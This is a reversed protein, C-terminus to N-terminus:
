SVSGFVINYVSPKAVYIPFHACISLQFTTQGGNENFPPHQVIADVCFRQIQSDIENKKYVHRTIPFYLHLM